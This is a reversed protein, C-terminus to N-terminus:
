TERARPPALRGTLEATLLQLSGADYPAVPRGTRLQALLQRLGTLAAAVVEPDVPDADPRGIDVPPRDGAVGSREDGRRAGAADLDASSQHPRATRHDGRARDADPRDALKAARASNAAEHLDAAAAAATDPDLTPDALKARVAATLLETRGLQKVAHWLEAAADDRGTGLRLFSVRTALAIKHADMDASLEPPLAAFAAALARAKRPSVQLGLRRLVTPWPASVAPDGDRLRELQRWRQVPDPLALVRPPVPRGAQQLHSALLACREFLLAAGLEGPQLDERALNEVLQWTRREEETLPGPCVHAPLAQFHPNDPHHVAGWRCARLRREGVAVRYATHSGAAPLQEVLPPQLVGCTAISSILDALRAPATSEGPSRGQADTFVAGPGRLPLLAFRRRRLRESAALRRAVDAARGAPVDPAADRREDPSTSM